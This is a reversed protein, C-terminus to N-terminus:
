ELFLPVCIWKSVVSQLCLGKKFFIAVVNDKLKLEKISIIELLNKIVKIKFPNYIIQASSLSYREEEEEATRHHFPSILPAHICLLRCLVSSLLYLVNFQVHFLLSRAPVSIELLM